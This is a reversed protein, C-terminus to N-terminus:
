KCQVIKVISHFQKLKLVQFSNYYLSCKPHIKSCGGGKIELILCPECFLSVLQVTNDTLINKLLRLSLLKPNGQDLLSHPLQVSTVLYPTIINVKSYQIIHVKSYEFINARHYQIMKFTKLTWETLREHRTSRDLAQGSEGSRRTLANRKLHARMKKPSWSTLMQTWSIIRALSTITTMLFIILVRTSSIMFSIKVMRRVLCAGELRRLLLEVGLQDPRLKEGAPLLNIILMTTKTSMM